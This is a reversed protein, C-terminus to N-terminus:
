PISACFDCFDCFALLCHSEGQGWFLSGDCEKSHLDSQAEIGELMKSIGGPLTLIHGCDKPCSIIFTNELSNKRVEVLPNKLCVPCVTRLDEDSLVEALGLLEVQIDQIDQLAEDIEEDSFGFTLSRRRRGRLSALEDKIMTEIGHEVFETGRLGAVIKDRSNRMRDACRKKLVERLPSRVPSKKSIEQRLKTMKPSLPLPKALPSNSIAPM